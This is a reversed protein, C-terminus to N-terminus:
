TECHHIFLNIRAVDALRTIQKQNFFYTQPGVQRIWPPEIQPNKDNYSFSCFHKPSLGWGNYVSDGFRFYKRERCCQRKLPYQWSIMSLAGGGPITVFSARHLSHDDLAGAEATVFFIFLYYSASSPSKSWKILLFSISFYFIMDMGGKLLNQTQSSYEVKATNWMGGQAVPHRM